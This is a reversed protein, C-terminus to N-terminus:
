GFRNFIDRVVMEWRTSATILRESAETPTLLSWMRTLVTARFIVHSVYFDYLAKDFDPDDMSGEESAQFSDDEAFDNPVFPDGDFDDSEELCASSFGKGLGKMIRGM